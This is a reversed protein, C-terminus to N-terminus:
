MDLNLDDVARKKAAGGGGGGGCCCGLRRTVAFEKVLKRIKITRHQGTQLALSESVPEVVVVPQAVSVSVAATASGNGKRLLPESRSGGGGGGSGDRVGGDGGGDSDSFGDTVAKRDAHQAPADGPCWYRPLVCFCVPLAVNNDSSVVQDLYSHTMQHRQTATTTPMAVNIYM